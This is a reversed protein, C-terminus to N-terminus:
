KADEKILIIHIPAEMRYSIRYLFYFHGIMLLVAIVVFIPIAHARLVSM